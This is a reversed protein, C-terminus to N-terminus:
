DLAFGANDLMERLLGHVKQGFIKEVRRYLDLRRKARPPTTIPTGENNASFNGINLHTVTIKCGHNLANSAPNSRVALRFLRELMIFIPFEEGFDSKCM